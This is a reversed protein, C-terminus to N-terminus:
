SFYDKSVAKSRKPTAKQEQAPLRTKALFKGLDSALIRWRPRVANPKTQINSATIENRSIMGLVCEESTGLFEATQQVTLARDQETDITM